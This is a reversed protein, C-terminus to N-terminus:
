EIGETRYIFKVQGDGSSGSFAKYNELVNKVADIRSSSGGAFIGTIKQIGQENFQELGDSLQASGNKLQSIGDQLAPMNGKLTVIGGNLEDAGYSLQETGAKLQDAGDKLSRAGDAAQSVGATYTQLGTYFTNYSDLSAKLAVITEKSSSAKAIQAKVDDSAMNESILKKIQADTNESITKKVDDSQMQEAINSEITKLIDPSEMQQSVAAEIKARTEADIKGANVAADYSAKDMNAASATVKEEVTNRVAETVKKSVEEKVAITVQKEVESRKAEVAATVKKEAQASVASEDLSAILKDLVETYNEPTLEPVDAGAASLQTNATSLLTEFVQKAGGNLSDNNATLTDLGDSLQAAGVQIEGAGSDLNESGTKLEQSGAALQDTGSALEGSRSLLEALGNDLQASGDMLQTMADTLECMSGGLDNLVDLESSEMDNLLGNSAITVTMGLEFNEADATIEFYEPIEIDETGLSEALGPFTIGMVATRDGDNLLKGGTVEVNSFVDNDLIVGTIVTFPVYITETKGDIDVNESQNNTFDYRITVKGSKGSLEEPSIDKGDLKYSVKMEVPLAKDSTGQCYIDGGQADWIVNGNNESFTKNDKVNEINQLDTSDTIEQSGSSNKLWDSVIVKQTKGAADALIYVTEDKTVPAPDESHVSTKEPVEATTIDAKDSVAANGIVAGATAAMAACICISAIKTINKNM